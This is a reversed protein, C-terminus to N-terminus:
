GKLFNTKIIIIIKKKITSFLLNYKLIYSFNNKNNNKKITSFLLNYKLVYIFKQIFNKNYQVLKKNKYEIYVLNIKKIVSPGKSM